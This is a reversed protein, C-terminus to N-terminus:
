LCIFVAQAIQNPWFINDSLQLAARSVMFDLNLRMNCLNEPLYSNM